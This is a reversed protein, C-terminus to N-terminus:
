LGASLDTLPADQPEGELSFWVRGRLGELPRYAEIVAAQSRHCLLAQECRLLAESSALHEVDAEGAAMGQVGPPAADAPVQVYALRVPHIQHARWTLWANRLARHAYVHDPHGNIGDDPFGVAVQPRIARLTSLIVRRARGAYTRLRGDPFRMVRVGALGLERGAAHLERRRVDALERRTLGLWAREKSAEGSSLTLLYVEHGAAAQDAMALGPGFSEDDPHAFVYLIRM